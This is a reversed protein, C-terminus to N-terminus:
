APLRLEQDERIKDIEPYCMEEPPLGEQESLWRCYAAAEYWTVSIIPGDAKPSRDLPYKHCVPVQNKRLDALFREFQEVTVHRTAIAFSHRITQPHQDQEDPTRGLETGPSGMLFTASGPVVAFTEGRPTVYWHPADAPEGALAQDTEKLARDMGL